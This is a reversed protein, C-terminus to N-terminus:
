SGSGAPRCAAPLYSAKWGSAAASDVLCDWGGARDRQWIVQTGAVGASARDGLTAVLALAGDVQDLTNDISFSGVLNSRDADFGAYYDPHAEDDRDASPNGARMLIDEVTARIAAVEGVVRTLQSRAIHDQFQPVAVAALIGIIAVAVMLEILTFGRQISNM